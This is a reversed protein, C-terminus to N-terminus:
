NKSLCVKCKSTYGTYSNRDVYFANFPKEQGCATCLKHAKALVKRASERKSESLQKKILKLEDHLSCCTYEDTNSFSLKGEIFKKRDLLEGIQEQSLM